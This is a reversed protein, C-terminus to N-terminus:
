PRGMGERGIIDKKENDQTGLVLIEKLQFSANGNGRKKKKIAPHCPSQSPENQGWFIIHSNGFLCHM